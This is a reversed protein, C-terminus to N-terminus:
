RRRVPRRNRRPKDQAGQAVRIQALRILEHEDGILFIKEGAVVSSIFHHGEALKRYFEETPYVSPNIERGLVRQAQAIASVIDSLSLEEGVVMVDVDSMSTETGKAVSGFIFAVRIRDELPTLAENLVRAVGFTKRVIGHLEEFIPCRRNAQFYIQRGEM